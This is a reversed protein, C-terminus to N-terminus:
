WVCDGILDSIVGLKISQIIRRIFPVIEFKIITCFYNLISISINVSMFFLVFKFSSIAIKLHLITSLLCNLRSLVLFAEMKLNSQKLQLLPICWHWKFSSQESTSYYVITTGMRPKLSFLNILKSCVVDQIAFRAM